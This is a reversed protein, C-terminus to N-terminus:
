AAANDAAARRDAAGGGAARGLAALRLAAIGLAAHLFIAFVSGFARHPEFDVFFVTVSGGAALGLLISARVICFLLFAFIGARNLLKM